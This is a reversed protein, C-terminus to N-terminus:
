HRRRLEARRFDVGLDGVDRLVELKRLADLLDHLLCDECARLAYIWSLEEDSWGISVSSRRVDLMNMMSDELGERRRPEVLVSRLCADTNLEGRRLALLAEDLM